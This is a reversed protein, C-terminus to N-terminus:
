VFCVGRGSVVTASAVFTDPECADGAGTQLGPVGNSEQWIEGQREPWYCIALGVGVDVSGAAFGVIANGNQQSARVYYGSADATTDWSVCNASATPVVFVVTPLVLALALVLRM